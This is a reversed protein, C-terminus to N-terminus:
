EQEDRAFRQQFQEVKALEEILWPITRNPIAIQQGKDPGDLVYMRVGNKFIQFCIENLEIDM